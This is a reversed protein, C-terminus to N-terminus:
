KAKRTEKEYKDKHRHVVKVLVEHGVELWLRVKSLRLEGFVVKKLGGISFIFSKIREPQLPGIGKM